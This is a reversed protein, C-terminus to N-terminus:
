SRVSMRPETIEPELESRNLASACVRCAAGFHRGQGCPGEPRSDTVPGDTSAVAIGPVTMLPLVRYRSRTGLVPVSFTADVASARGGAAAGSGRPAIRRRARAMGPAVM